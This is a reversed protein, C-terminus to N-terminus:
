RDLNVLFKAHIMTAYRMRGSTDPYPLYVLQGEVMIRSGKIFNAAAYVATDNYAAVNHWTTRHNSEHTAVRLAVRTAGNKLIQTTLHAGVYGVLTVRNITM